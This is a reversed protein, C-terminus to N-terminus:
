PWPWGELVAKAEVKVLVQALQQNPTWNVGEAMPGWVAVRVRVEV